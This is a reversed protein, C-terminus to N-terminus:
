NKGRWCADWINPRGAGVLGSSPYILYWDPGRPGLVRSDWLVHKNPGWFGNRFVGSCVWTNFLTSPFSVSWPVLLLSDPGFSTKVKKVCDLTQSKWMVTRTLCCTTWSSTEPSSCYHSSWDEKLTSCFVINGRPLKDIYRCKGTCLRTTMSFSFALFLVPQM